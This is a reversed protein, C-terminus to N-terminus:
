SITSTENTARELLSIIPSHAFNMKALDLPTKGEGDRIFVDANHSLLSLIVDYNSSLHCSLAYHLATKHEYSRRNLNTDHEILFLSVENNEGECANMLPTKGVNDRHDVHADAAVLSKVLQIDDLAHYLVCHGESDVYNPNVGVELLIPVMIEPSPNEYIALVLANQAVFLQSSSSRDFQDDDDYDPYLDIGITSDIRSGNALFFKLLIQDTRSSCCLLFLYDLYERKLPKLIDFLRLAIKPNTNHIVADCLTTFTVHSGALLLIELVELSTNQTIAYYLPTHGNEDCENVDRIHILAKEIERIDDVHICLDCVHKFDKSRDM